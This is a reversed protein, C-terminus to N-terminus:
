DRRMKKVCFDISCALQLVSRNREDIFCKGQDDHGRIVREKLFRDGVHLLDHRAMPLDGEMGICFTGNPSAFNLIYDNQGFNRVRHRRGSIRDRSLYKRVAYCDSPTRFKM